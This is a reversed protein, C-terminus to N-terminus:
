MNKKALVKKYKLENNTPLYDYTKYIVYAYKDDRKGLLREAVKDDIRFDCWEPLKPILDGNYFLGDVVVFFDKAKVSDKANLMILCLESWIASAILELNNKPKKVYKTSVEGNKCVSIDDYYNRYLIGWKFNEKSAKKKEQSTFCQEYTYHGMECGIQKETSFMYESDGLKEALAETIISGNTVVKGHYKYFNLRDDARETFLQGAKPMPAFHLITEFASNIDCLRDFDNKSLNAKNKIQPHNIDSKVISYVKDMYTFNMTMDRKSFSNITRVPGRTSRNKFTVTYNDPDENIIAFENLESNDLISYIINQGSTVYDTRYYVNPDGYQKIIKAMDNMDVHHYIKDHDPIDLTKCDVVEINRIERPGQDREVNAIVLVISNKDQCRTGVTYVERGTFLSKEEIIYYCKADQAVEKGQFRIPTGCCAPQFYSPVNKINATKQPVIPYKDIDPYEEAAIHKKAVLEIDKRSSLDFKEFTMLELDLTHCIYANKEDFELDEFKMIGCGYLRQLDQVNFLMNSELDYLEHYMQRTEETRARKTEKIQVYYTTKLDCLRKFDRFAGDSNDVSLMQKSDTLVVIKIKDKHHQIWKYIKRNSLLIEDIIIVDYGEIDAEEAYMCPSNIFCGGCVTKADCGFKNKIANKLANSFGTYLVKMNHSFYLNITTTTKACGAMGDLVVPNYKMTLFIDDPVGFIM